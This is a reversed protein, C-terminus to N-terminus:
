TVPDRHKELFELLAANVESPKELIVAHGAGPVVVLESDPICDALVRSYSPLKLADREGVMVLTPCRIRDLRGTIDLHRFADVLQAFARFFDPECSQLRAEGQEILKPNADIFGASFTTPLMTQYLTEPAELAAQRWQSVAHDLEPGVESVSSIVSLSKVREPWRSAFILAVEGGYSTGIIHCSEVGLHDLLAKLDQAHDEMTWPQLPKDSLLQGRFDHLLCRYHRSLVSTQLNWSKTTMLVGNLFAVPEGQGLVEWHLQIGDVELRPL